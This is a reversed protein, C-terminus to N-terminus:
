VKTIFVRGVLLAQGMEPQAKSNNKFEVVIIFNTIFVRVVLLAQGM